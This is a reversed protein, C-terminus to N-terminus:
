WKLLYKWSVEGAAYVALLQRVDNQYSTVYRWEWVDVSKIKTCFQLLVLQVWQHDHTSPKWLQATQSPNGLSSCQYNRWVTNTLHKSFPFLFGIFSITDIAYFLHGSPEYRLVKEWKKLSALSMVIRDFSTKPWALSKSTRSRELYLIWFNYLSSSRGASLEFRGTPAIWRCVAQSRM